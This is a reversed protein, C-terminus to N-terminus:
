SGSLAASVPALTVSEARNGLAWEVVAALTAPRTRGVLIVADNQRARFAARDMARRIQDDTEGEGDIDRFILGTPVGVREALQHATNLGRPFTILGHGSATVVDIVQAVAARDSQFSGGSLDMVAVAQPVNEFNVRMAVEVDQPTAGEPLSPIMVVERGAARYSEAIQKAREQGANVGFSVSEPLGDLLASDLPESGEHLLVISLLPRGEPNSFGSRWRQLANSQETIEVPEDTDITEPESTETSGSGPLRRIIPLAEDDSEPADGIRPLRDTEVDPALNGIEDVPSFFEPQDDSAIVGAPSPDSEPAVGADPSQSASPMTEPAEMPEPAEVTEVTAPPENTSTSPVTAPVDLVAIEPSVDDAELLASVDPATTQTDPAPAPTEPATLGLGPVPDAPPSQGPGTVDVDVGDAFEPVDGLGAPSEITPQPVELVSTDFAPPTEAIDAPPTVGSVAEGAPRTEVQPVVPETEPRAQDFETGAPIEVPSAEPKPFSLQQRDVIQSSVLLLGLGVLGGWFIGALFGRAM